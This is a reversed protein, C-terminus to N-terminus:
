VFGYRHLFMRGYKRLTPFSLIVILIALTIAPGFLLSGFIGVFLGVVLGVVFSCLFGLFADNSDYFTKNTSIFQLKQDDLLDDYASSKIKFEKYLEM